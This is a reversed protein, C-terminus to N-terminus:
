KTKGGTTDPKSPSPIEKEEEKITVMELSEYRKERDGIQKIKASSGKNGVPALTKGDTTMLPNNSVNNIVFM